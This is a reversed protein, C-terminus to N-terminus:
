ITTLMGRRAVRVFAKLLRAAYSAHPAKKKKNPARCISGSAPKQALRLASWRGSTASCHLYVKLHKCWSSLPLCCTFLFCKSNWVASLCDPVAWGYSPFHSSIYLIYIHNQTRSEQSNFVLDWTSFSLESWLWETLSLIYRKGVDQGKWEEWHRGESRFKFLCFDWVLGRLQALGYDM